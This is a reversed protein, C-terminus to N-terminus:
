FSLVIAQRGTPAAPPRMAPPSVRDGSVAIAAGSWRLSSAVQRYSVPHVRDRTAVSSLHVVDDGFSRAIAVAAEAAAANYPALWTVRVASLRQRLAVLNRVLQPNEPDNSGLGIVAREVPANGRFTRLTETSSAGVRAHVACQLGQAVLADATGVATSDGLILCLPLMLPQVGGARDSAVDRVAVALDRDPRFHPTGLGDLLLASAAPRRQGCRRFVRHHNTDHDFALAVIIGRGFADARDGDCAVM